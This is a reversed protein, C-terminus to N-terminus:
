KGGIKKCIIIIDLPCTYLVYQVRDDRLQLIIGSLPKDVHFNGKEFAPPVLQMVAASMKDLAKDVFTLLFAKPTQTPNLWPPTSESSRDTQQKIYM